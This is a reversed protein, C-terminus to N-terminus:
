MDIKLTIHGGFSRKDLLYIAESATCICDSIVRGKAFGRQNETIIKPAISALRDALVKSIIKFIFNAMAIPRYQEIREAEPVKPILTIINSNLNPLIWGQKFFQLVVDYFDTSIIDLYEHYFFGCLWQGQPVTEM